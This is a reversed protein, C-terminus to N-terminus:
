NNGGQTEFSPRHPAVSNNAGQGEFSPSTSPGTSDTTRCASLTPLSLLAALLFLRVLRM